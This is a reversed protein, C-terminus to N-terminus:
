ALIKRYENCYSTANQKASYLNTVRSLANRVITTRNGPEVILQYIANAYGTPSHEHVLIGCNGQDLLDPIGGVAHAVIPTQLAMSELLIMPLGEHDSTILLADLEQVKDHINECHGEFFVQEDRNLHQSLIKLEKGLPGEGFIHFSVKLEPYINLLRNATQIFLDVRKVPTLRGAFGIRFIKHGPEPISEVAKVSRNLLEVDIGNKIVHVKNSPYDQELIGALDDSVAIIQRQLYRGCFWDMFLILRKPLHFWAPHHEPAGHVTRLTPINGSLKAAISGLINEKNRHTHIIDPKLARINNILQLLIKIDNLQSEKIVTVNIGINRLEQELRGHNLVIVIPTVGPFSHLEKVLTFLQVEAGAWLDGSAIHLVKLHSTGEM